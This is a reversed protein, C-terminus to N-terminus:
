FIAIFANDLRVSPRTAVFQRGETVAKGVPAHQLYQCEPGGAAQRQRESVRRKRRRKRCGTHPARCDAREGQDARGVRELEQPRWQNIAQWWRETTGDRASLSRM